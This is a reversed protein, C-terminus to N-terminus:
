VAAELLLFRTAGARSEKAIEYGVFAAASDPLEAYVHAGPALLGRERLIELAHALDSSAFPPDLFVVDFRQTCSRLWRLAEGHVIYTNDAALRERNATLARVVVPDREILTVERAGRSAAEFGLAGSGAFLDLCIADDLYPALWNFVTVRVRDLTPRLEARDPFRLKRRKWKGGIIRVENALPM